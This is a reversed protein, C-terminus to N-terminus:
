IFITINKATFSEFDCGLQMDPTKILMDREKQDNYYKQYYPNNIIEHDIITIGYNCGYQSCNLDQEIDMFSILGYPFVRSRRYCFDKIPNDDNKIDVLLIFPKEKAINLGSLNYYIKEKFFEWNNNDIIDLQSAYDKLQNKISSKLCKIGDSNALILIGYTLIKLNLLLKTKKIIIPIELNLLETKDM